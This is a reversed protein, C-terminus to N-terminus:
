LDCFVYVQHGLSTGVGVEGIDGARCATGRMHGRPFPTSRGTHPTRIPPSLPHRNRRTHQFFPIFRVWQLGSSTETGVEGIDGACCATGRMHGRPSLMSRRTFPTGMPPPLRKPPLSPFSIPCSTRWRVTKPPDKFPGTRLATARPQVLKVLNRHSTPVRVVGVSTHVVPGSRSAETVM